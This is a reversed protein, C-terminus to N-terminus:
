LPPGLGIARFAKTATDSKLFALFKRAEALNLAHSGVVAYTTSTWELVDGPVPGIVQVGEDLVLEPIATAGTEVEGRAIAAAVMEGIGQYFRYKQAIETGLGLRDVAKIFPPSTGSGGNPDVLGITKVKRIFATFSAVDRFVPKTADPSIGMGIKTEGLPVRTSEDAWGEQHVTAWAKTAVIIIDVTGNKRLRDLTVGPNGLMMHVTDGSEKEFQPVLQRLAGITTGQGILSLEGASAPSIAAILVVVGAAVRRM